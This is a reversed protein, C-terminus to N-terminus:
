PYVEILTRMGFIPTFKYSSFGADELVESWEDQTREKGYTDVMMMIDFFLRTEVSQRDGNEVDIVMKLIIVKGSEEKSPIAEKCLKLIRVCDEDSWDHLIWKLFVADAPPISEFMDGGAYVMGSSQPLTAVVHPFDFLTCKVHPFAEAVATAAAGKGGGVDALSELGKFVHGFEIVIVSMILRSDSAMCENFCGNIEPSQAACEWLGLGHAAEFPTGGKGEFWRSLWQWPNVLVPDLMMLVFPALSTSSQSLLLKSSPTLVYGEEEEEEGNKHM